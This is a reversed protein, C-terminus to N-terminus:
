NPGDEKLTHIDEETATIFGKDCARRMAGADVRLNRVMGTMAALSLHLNDVALFVPQKDEQMDKGYTLPLGKMLVLLQVLAGVAQGAKGGASTGM